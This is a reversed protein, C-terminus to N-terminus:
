HVESVAPGNCGMWQHPLQKHNLFQRFEWDWHGCRGAAFHFRRSTSLSALDTVNTTVHYGYDHKRRLLSMKKISMACFVNVESSDTLREVVFSTLRDNTHHKARPQWSSCGETSQTFTGRVKDIKDDSLCPHGTSPLKCVGLTEFNSIGDEPMLTQVLLLNKAMSGVVIANFMTWHVNFLWLLCM